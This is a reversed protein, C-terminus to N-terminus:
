SGCLPFRAPWSGSANTREDGGLVLAIQRASLSGAQILTLGPRSQELRKRTEARKQQPKRAGEKAAAQQEEKSGAEAKQQELAAEEAQTEREIDKWFKRASTERM